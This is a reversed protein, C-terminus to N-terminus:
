DVGAQDSIGLWSALQSFFGTRVPADIASEDLRDEGGPVLRAALRRLALTSPADPALLTFPLRQRVAAPVAPDIPVAGGYQLPRNLFTQTVRNIRNFVNRAETESAAMNVVVQIVADPSQRVLSKIM